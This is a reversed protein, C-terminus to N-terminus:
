VLSEELDRQVLFVQLDPSALLLSALLDLAEMPEQPEGLDKLALPDVTERRVLSELPALNALVVLPDLNALSPVALLEPLDLLDKPDLCVKPVRVLPALLALLDRPAPSGQLGLSM